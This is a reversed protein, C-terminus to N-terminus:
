ASAASVIRRDLELIAATTSRARHDCELTDDLTHLACAATAQLTESVAPAIRTFAIRGALFAEVAVENAANLTVSAFDGANLVDYALQISPFRQHDVAEFDLRGRMALDLGPVDVSGRAPCALAQAIPTRMDPHGLQALVSGDVYEVLSHVVSQPHVVVEIASGAVGFLRHAEIVELGKNMMTASDVSIKRGMSWNPHACAEDPTVDHLTSVERTRFPGGSATLLLRRVGAEDPNRAYTPPLCQFIANHESDIPLVAAGGRAAAAMFLAGGMVLAEKNALLIRKGAAAAAMTPQLGAAGVIAALVTDAGSWTAVACLGSPGSAVETRVGATRLAADLERAADPDLMAALKPRFRLCIDRMKQWNRNAAVAALTFRDPHRGIVDLTSAGVSGTAGLVAITRVHHGDSMGSM